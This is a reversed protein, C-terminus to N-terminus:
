GRHKRFSSLHVRNNGPSGKRWEQLRRTASSRACLSRSRSTGTCGTPSRPRKLSHGGLEFFNDHVGIRPVQLVEEWIEAIAKEWATRPPEYASPPAAAQGPLVLAKRDMKGNPTRPFERVRVLLSPIMYDPLRAKLYDRLESPSLDDHGSLLYWAVLRQDGTADDRLDVVAQEVAPHTAFAAEIEGLEIRFGRLKVQQDTAGIFQINGDSQYRATDGTKYVRRRPDRHFPHPLFRECPSTRDTLTNSPLVTVASTCIAQCALRCQNCTDISFTHRRTPLRDASRRSPMQSELGAADLKRITSWITTETPGYMNWVSACRGLLQDALWVPLAEGGCLAKLQPSGQWGAALLMRWTAPTAQLVTAGCQDLTELLRVGDAATERSALVLKAGQILPLFIELAAIDFSLTTVALLVDEATLGPEDAMSYLFNSLARHPIQVGKPRGTSGSTYIVYALGESTAGAALGALGDAGPMHEADICVVYTESQPLGGVLALQTLLVPARSDTLMFALRDRPFSPDLPVYAGGAKMVALVAAVMDIGRDMCVGVLVNRGVGLSNLHRAVQDVRQSLAGYTIQQEECQVAVAEPKNRVQEQFLGVVTKDSPYPRSTANFRDLIERTEDVVLMNLKGISKRPEKLYDEVLQCFHEGMRAIRDDVFLDTNYEIALTLGGPSENFNFTLDTKSTGPHALFSRVTVEDFALGPDDQNQLIITVDFLPNRSLDRAVNLEAVLQDFPYSQHDFAAATTQRVQKLFDVFPMEGDIQNRLAITNLYLGIQNELDPHSRGAVPSGVILDAQGTYKYLLIYLTALLTMFLSANHQRGLHHLAKLNDVALHFSLERGEFTQLAPRPFDTPLALVPPVDGLTELWWDRHIALAGSQLLRDQWDAYDRYQTRLPPFPKPEGRRIAEYFSTLEKALIGISVGDCVIHHITFLLVHRQNDLRAIAARFLPGRELDFPQRAHAHALQMAAELADDRDSLNILRLETDIREHIKQRPEGDVMVISTRMSEHREAFRAIAQRLADVDLPGELMQHLPINYAASGDELQSLVWLRRQAHSLPYSPQEPLHPISESQSDLIALLEAKRERLESKLGETMVGKPARFRLRGQENWLKVELGGLRSLLERPSNM